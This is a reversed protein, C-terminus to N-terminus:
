GLAAHLGVSRRGDTEARYLTVLRRVEAGDAVRARQEAEREREGARDAETRRSAWGMDAWM